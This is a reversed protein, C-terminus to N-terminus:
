KNRELMQMQYQWFSQIYDRSLQYVDTKHWLDIEKQANFYYFLNGVFATPVCYLVYRWNFGTSKALRRTLPKM